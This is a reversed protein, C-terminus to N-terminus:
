DAVFRLHGKKDFDLTGAGLGREVAGRWQDALRPRAREPLKLIARDRARAYAEVRRVREADSMPTWAPEAVRALCMHNTDHRRVFTVEFGNAGLARVLSAQDFAQVHLPNLHAILSQGKALCEQDDPENYFYVHGGPNLRSRLTQLFERPRLVHTLMHNCVILDFAGEYPVEFRDYDILGKSDLGYVEKLLFKQSEWIPIVAVEAGFLRRLSEAITGARPRLELVRKGTPPVLGGLLDVHVSNEFRDKLMGDLHERPKLGLHGSVFVGHGAMRRLTARDDDTLPRPNLLPNPVAAPDDWKGIVEGFHELLYRYRAGFPRRSAYLAGCAHCVVYDYRASQQDPATDQMILKNWELVPSRGAHGCLPCATLLMWDRGDPDPHLGDGVPEWAWRGAAEVTMPLSRGRMHPARAMEPDGTERDGAEPDDPGADPAETAAGAIRGLQLNYQLLRDGMEKQLACLQAEVDSLRRSVAELGNEIRAAHTATDRTREAIEGTIKRQRRALETLEVIGLAAALRGILRSVPM